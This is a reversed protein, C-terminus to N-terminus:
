DVSHQHQLESQQVFALEIDEARVALDSMGIYRFGEEVTNAIITIPGQREERNDESVTGLTINVMEYLLKKVNVKPNRGPYDRTRAQQVRATIEARRHAFEKMDANAKDATFHDILEKLEHFLRNLEEQDRYNVGASVHTHLSTVTGIVSSEIGGLAMYDGGALVGKNVRISGLCRIHCNRIESEVLVDGECEVTVDNIFNACISGGCTITGRGQGSMGCFSIDGQSEIHCLGINGQVRIGKTAKISFDDLVDGKIDVFGNFNINGVKFDLDGKVTFTDEVSIETGNIIVRGDAKAMITLQDDSISVNQGLAPCYPKGSSAQITTGRISQGPQGEGPPLITAILQGSTVNYFHQVAHMDVTTTDAEVSTTLQTDDTVEIQLAGDRGPVAPTGAALLLGATERSSTAAELLELIGQQNIGSVIGTQNFVAQLEEHTLPAGATVPHYSCRCETQDPSIELVLRYGPRNFEHRATQDSTTTSSADSM